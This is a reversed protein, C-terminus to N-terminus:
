EVYDHDYALKLHKAFTKANADTYNALVGAISKKRQLIQQQTNSGMYSPVRGAVAEKMKHIADSEFTKLHLLM